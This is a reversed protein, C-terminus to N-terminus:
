QVHRHCVHLCGQFNILFFVSLLTMEVDMFNRKTLIVLFKFNGRPLRETSCTEIYFFWLFEMGSTVPKVSLHYTQQPNM